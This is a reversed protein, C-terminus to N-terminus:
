TALGARTTSALLNRPICNTEEIGKQTLWFRRPTQAPDYSVWGHKEALIAPAVMAVTRAIIGEPSWRVHDGFEPDKKMEEVVKDVEVGHEKDVAGLRYLAGLIIKNLRGGMEEPFPPRPPLPPRPPGMELEKYGATDLWQIIKSADALTKVRVRIEYIGEVQVM